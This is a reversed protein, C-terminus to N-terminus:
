LAQEDQGFWAPDNWFVRAQVEVSGSIDVEGGRAPSLVTLLIVLLLVRM